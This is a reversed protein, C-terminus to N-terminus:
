RGGDTLQILCDGRDAAIRRPELAIGSAEGVEVADVCGYLRLGSANIHQRHISPNVFEARESFDGLLM